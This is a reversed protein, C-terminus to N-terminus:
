KKGGLWGLIVFPIMCIVVVAVLCLFVLCGVGRVAMAFGDYFIGSKM